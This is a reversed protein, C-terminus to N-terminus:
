PVIFSGYLASEMRERKQGNLTWEVFDMTVSFFNEEGQAFLFRGMFYNQALMM